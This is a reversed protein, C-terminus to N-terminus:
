STRLLKIQARAWPEFDKEVFPPIIMTNIERELAELDLSHDPCPAFWFDLHGEWLDFMQKIRPRKSGLRQDRLYDDYRMQLSRPKRAGTIGIYVIYGHSPIFGNEVSVAFAYIGRDRPVATKNAANFRIKQWQFQYGPPVKKWAEPWVVVDIRHQRWYDLPTAPRPLPVLDLPQM